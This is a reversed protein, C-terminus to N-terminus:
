RFRIKYLSTALGCPLAVEERASAFGAGLRKVLNGEHRGDAERASWAGDVVAVL